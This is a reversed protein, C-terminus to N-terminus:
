AGSLVALDRRKAVCPNVPQLAIEGLQVDADVAADAFKPRDLGVEAPNVAHHEAPDGQLVGVQQGPQVPINEPLGAGDRGARLDEGM